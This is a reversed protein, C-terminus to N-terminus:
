PLRQRCAIDRDARWKSKSVNAVAGYRLLWERFEPELTVEDLFAGALHSSDPMYVNAVDIITNDFLSWELKADDLNISQLTAGVIDSCRLTTGRFSAYPFVVGKLSASDLTAGSFVTRTGRASDLQTGILSAHRLVATDLLAHQLQAGDFFANPLEVTSLCAGRLDFKRLDASDRADSVPYILGYLNTSSLDLPREAYDASKYRKLLSQLALRVDERKVQSDACRADPSHWRTENRVFDALSTRADPVLRPERELIL